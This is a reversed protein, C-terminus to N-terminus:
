NTAPKKNQWMNPMLRKVKVLDAVCTSKSSTTETESSLFKKRTSCVASSVNNAVMRAAATAYTSSYVLVNIPVYEHTPYESRHCGSM